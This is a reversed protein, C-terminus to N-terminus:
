GVLHISADAEYKAPLSARESAATNFNLVAHGESPLAYGDTITVGTPSNLGIVQDSQSNNSTLHM